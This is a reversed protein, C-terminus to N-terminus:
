GGRSPAPPQQPVARRRLLHGPDLGRAIGDRDEPGDLGAEGHPVVEARPSGPVRRLREDLRLHPVDEWGGPPDEKRGKM